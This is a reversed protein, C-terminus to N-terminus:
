IPEIRVPNRAHRALARLDGADSSLVIGGGAQDASAVVIADVASPIRRAKVKTRLAAAQRALDENVAQIDCTRLLRNEHYDRRHDGTLAETLVVTPVLPPWEGRNRLETLRARDGALRSVGHSDLILTV